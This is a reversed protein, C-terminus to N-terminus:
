APFTKPRIKTCPNRMTPRQGIGSDHLPVCLLAALTLVAVMFWAENIAQVLALREVMPKVMTQMAAGSMELPPFLFKDLPIGVAKAMAIDGSQLHKAIIRTHVPARSYIVTDILAIGIAGGLNRLRKLPTKGFPRM